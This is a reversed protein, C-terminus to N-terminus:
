TTKSSSKSLSEIDSSGRPTNRGDGVEVSSSHGTETELSLLMNQCDLNVEEGVTTAGTM